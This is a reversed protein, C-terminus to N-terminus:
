FLLATQEKPTYDEIVTLYTLETKPPKLNEMNTQINCSRKTFFAISDILFSNSSFYSNLFTSHCLILIFIFWIELYQYYIILYKFKFVLVLYLLM